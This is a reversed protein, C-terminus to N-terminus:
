RTISLVRSTEASSPIGTMDNDSLIRSRLSVVMSRERSYSYEIYVIVNSEFGQVNVYVHNQVFGKQLKIGGDVSISDQGLYGVTRTVTVEGNFTNFTGFTDIRLVTDRALMSEFPITVWGEPITLDDALPIERQYIAVDGNQLEVYETTDGTRLSAIVNDKGGLFSDFTLFTLTVTDTSLVSTWSTDTISRELM